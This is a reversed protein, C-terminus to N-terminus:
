PLPRWCAPRTGSRTAARAPAAPAARPWAWCRSRFSRCCAPCSTSCCAGPSRLCCPWPWGEARPRPRLAACRTTTRPPPPRPAAATWRPPRSPPSRQGTDGTAAADPAPVDAESSPAVGTQAAQTGPGARGAPLSVQVRRTMPPYCIGEDQCGQFTATLVAERPEGHSRVLPLPVDVQDFYVVVDGFYGDNHEVGPPWRPAAAAIGDAALAFSSRDRYLYYGPAPTFRMLITNGDGAIAELAFAQEEPLPLAAGAGPLSPAGASGGGLAQGLAAFGADAGAAAGAGPGGPPLRVEVTRTQPPYCIGLDACGQYRIKLRTSGATAREPWRGPSM